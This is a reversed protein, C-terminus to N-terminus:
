KSLGCTKYMIGFGRTRNSSPELYAHLCPPASGIAAPDRFAESVLSAKKQGQM